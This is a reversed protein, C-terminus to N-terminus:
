TQELVYGVGRVTRILPRGFPVELKRRLYSVYVDVINTSGLFNQDWVHELLETRSVVDGERRMLFELLAFERSTLEVPRGARIVTHAAPDVELDGVVLVPPREPAGRRVLARLRAILEGYDFPKVLYDDAGADLGRIRDGVGDRATLMLVPAWRGDQRLARCVEVGDPAPIMVDLIVADYDYVRAQLLADEGSSALDVAYGERRLGRALSGALKSDDDVILLRM